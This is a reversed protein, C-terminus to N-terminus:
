LPEMQEIREWYVKMLHVFPNGFLKKGLLSSDATYARIIDANEEDPNDDRLIVTKGSAKFHGQPMHVGGLHREKFDKISLVFVDVLIKIFDEQAQSVLDGENVISLFLGPNISAEQISHIPISTIPPTGFTICHKEPIGVNLHAIRSHSM